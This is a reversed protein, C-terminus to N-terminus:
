GAVRLELQDLRGPHRPCQDSDSPGVELLGSAVFVLGDDVMPTGVEGPGLDNRSWRIDGTTADLAAFGGSPGAYVVGDAVAPGRTVPAGLSTVWRPKGTAADLAFVTGDDSGGYLVDEVIAPGARVPGGTPFSWVVGGTSGDLAVVQGAKTGLYVRGDAVAPSGNVPGGLQRAWRVTGTAADFAQVTGSDDAVYVTGDVVAPQVGVPGKLSVQWVIVPDGAPGPGPLVGNREPGGHYMWVSPPLPAPRSLVIAILALVALLAIVLLTAVATPAPLRFPTGGISWRSSAKVQPTAVLADHIADALGSTLSPGAVPTLATQFIADNRERRNM